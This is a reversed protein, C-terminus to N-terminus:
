PKSRTHCPDLDVPGLIVLGDIAPLQSHDPVKDLLAPNEFYVIHGGYRKKFFFLTLTQKSPGHGNITKTPATTTPITPIQTNSFPVGQQTTARHCRYHLAHSSHRTGSYEKAYPIQISRHIRPLHETHRLM